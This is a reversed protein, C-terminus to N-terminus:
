CRTAPTTIRASPGAPRSATSSRPRLCGGRPARPEGRAARDRRDPADRARPRHQAPQGAPVDAAPVRHRDDLLRASLELRPPAAQPGRGDPRVDARLQGGPHLLHRQLHGLLVPRALPGARGGPRASHRALSARSAAETTFSWTGALLPSPRTRGTPGASVHVTYRTAPKLPGPPEIYVALSRAGSLDSKPRLWGSAARPSGDGPGSCSSPRRRRGSHLSVVVSDPNVEGAKAGPPSRWSSTSARGCPSTARTASRAPPQRAPRAAREVLKVQQAGCPVCALVLVALM